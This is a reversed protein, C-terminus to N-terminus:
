GDGTYEKLVTDKLKTLAQHLIREVKDVPLDLIYAIENSNYCHGGEVLEEISNIDDLRELILAHPRDGLTFSGLKRHKRPKTPCQACRNKAAKM